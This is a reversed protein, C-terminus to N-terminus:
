ADIRLVKRFWQVVKQLLKRATKIPSDTITEGGSHSRAEVSPQGGTNTTGNASVGSVSISASADAEGSQSKTPTNGDEGM